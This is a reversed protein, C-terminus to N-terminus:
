RLTSKKILISSINNSHSNSDIPDVIILTTKIKSKIDRYKILNTLRTDPLTIIKLVEYILPSINKPRNIPNTKLKIAEM